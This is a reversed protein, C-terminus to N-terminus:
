LKEEKGYNGISARKCDYDRVKIRICSLYQVARPM